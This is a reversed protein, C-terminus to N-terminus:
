CWANAILQCSWVCMVVGSGEEDCDDPHLHVDALKVSGVFRLTPRGRMSELTLALPNDLLAASSGAKSPTFSRGPTAAQAIPISFMIGDLTLRSDPLALAGRYLLRHSSRGVPTGHQTPIAETVPTSSGTDALETVAATTVSM